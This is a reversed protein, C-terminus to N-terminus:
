QAPEDPDEIVQPSKCCSGSAGHKGRRPDLDADRDAILGDERGQDPIRYFPSGLDQYVLGIVAPVHPGGSGVLMPGRVDKPRDFVPSIQGPRVVSSDGPDNIGPSSDDRLAGNELRLDDASSNVWASFEGKVRAKAVHKGPKAQEKAGNKPSKNYETTM